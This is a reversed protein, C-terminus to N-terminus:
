KIILKEVKKGKSTQFSVFYVGKKLIDKGDWTKKYISEKYDPIDIIEVEIGNLNYIIIKHLKIDSSEFTFTTVGNSPNPSIKTNGINENKPVIGIGRCTQCVKATWIPERFDPCITGVRYSLCYATAPILIQLRTGTVNVRTTTPRQNSPCCEPDNYTYEVVYDNFLPSGTWSIVGRDCNFDTSTPAACLPIIISNCSVCEKATWKPLRSDACLTGISYSFCGSRNIPISLTTTGPGVEFRQSTPLTTSRPCCDPDNYNVEIVYGLAGPVTAWELMNTKCNYEHKETATCNVTTDNFFDCDIEGAISSSGRSACNRCIDQVFCVQGCDTEVKHLVFYYVGDSISSYSYNLGTQSDVLTYPGGTSNPSSYLEWSHTIGPHNNYPNLVNTTITGNFDVAVQFDGTLNSTQGPGNAWFQLALCCDQNSRYDLEEGRRSGNNYYLVKSECVDACENSKMVHIVTYYLGPQANSILNINAPGNDQVSYVPTYPGGSSNPSSLVYWEHTPNFASYDTFSSIALLGSTDIFADFSADTPCCNPNNFIYDNNQGPNTQSDTAPQTGSGIDFLINAQFDYGGSQGTMDSSNVTFCFNGAGNISTSLTNIVNGNQLIDLEISNVSGTTGNLNPLTYTGCVQLPTDQCPDMPTLQIAGQGNGNCSVSCIDDIYAYGFHATQGCDSVIFELTIVDGAKGNVTLSGCTWDQWVVQNTACGPYDAFSNIFPNVTPDPNSVICFRDLTNSSADLARAMFFPNENPHNPYDAVLAYSFNIEQIGDDQLTISKILKNIGGNPNGTSTNCILPANIRVAHNGNNVMQLSGGGYAVIPDLGINTIDFHNANGFAEPNFIINSAGVLPIADCEGLNYIGTEGALSTDFTGSEFDGNTCIPAAIAKFIITAEPNNTFYLSRLYDKKYITLLEEFPIATLEQITHEDATRLKEIYNYLHKEPVVNDINEQIFSAIKKEVKLQEQYRDKENIKQANLFMCSSMILILVISYLKKM